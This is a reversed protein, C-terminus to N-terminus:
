GVGDIVVLVVVVVVVEGQSPQLQLQGCYISISWSPGELMTVTFLGFYLLCLICMILLM